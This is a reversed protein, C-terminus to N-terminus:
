GKAGLYGGTFKLLLDISASDLCSDEKVKVRGVLDEWHVTKKEDGDAAYWPRRALGGHRQGKPVEFLTGTVTKGEDVDEVLLLRMEESIFGVLDGVQLQELAGERADDAEPDAAPKWRSLRQTSFKNPKGELDDLLSRGTKPDELEVAIGDESM